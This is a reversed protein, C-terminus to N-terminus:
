KGELADFNPEVTPKISAVNEGIAAEAEQTVKILDAAERRFRDKWPELTALDRQTDPHQMYRIMADSGKPAEAQLDDMMRAWLARRDAEKLPHKTEKWQAEVPPEGADEAFERQMEQVYKSDDFLGMHVDAGVGILKLANGIADTYAKKFAEDDGTLGYKNKGVVKDGGVGFVRESQLLNNREIKGNVDMTASLTESYWVSVTCYVMVEGESAPVVQFSPENVGWGIGCPGFEETMRKFSWMPKIATGAFGGARKFSKTQEPNTRGLKDWLRMNSM